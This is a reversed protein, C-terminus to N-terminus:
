SAWETIAESPAEFGPLWPPHRQPVPEPLGDPLGLHHLIKKIVARREITALLRLRGGCGPCALVNIAFTRQLLAAWSYYKPRRAYGPRAAPPEAAASAGSEIDTRATDRDAAPARGTRSASPPETASVAPAPQECATQPLAAGRSREQAQRVAARRRRAHPALGGHYVLLNIRPKPIMAALKELLESPEFRIARTGDSWPRRLRLLVKGDPTLGLADQAVPPRLIYRCLHELRERDGAPDFAGAALDRGSHMAM